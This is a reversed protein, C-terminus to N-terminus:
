AKGQRLYAVLKNLARVRHSTLAKAEAGMEAYTLEGGEPVFVPDYGFGEEGRKETTIAGRVEGVFLTQERPTVYAIVTKLKASRDPCDAMSKLLLDMNAHADRSGSYHATDVGPAGGLCDVELGSDDAFVAGGYRDFIYKAKQMANEELTRGTEPIEGEFGIEKLSVLTFAGELAGSIERLKAANNSAFIVRMM